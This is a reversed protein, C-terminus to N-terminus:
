DIGYFKNTTKKVSEISTADKDMLDFILHAGARVGCKFAEKQSNKFANIRASNFKDFVAKQEKTLTKCFEKQQKVWESESTQVYESLILFDEYNDFILDLADM